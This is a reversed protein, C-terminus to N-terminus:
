NYPPQQNNVRVRVSAQSVLEDVSSALTTIKEGEIWRLADGKSESGCESPNTWNRPERPTWIIGTAGLKWSALSFNGRGEKEKLGM